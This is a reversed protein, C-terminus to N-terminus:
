IKYDLFLEVLLTIFLFSEFKLSNFWGYAGPEGNEFDLM